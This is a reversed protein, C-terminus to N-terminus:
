ATTGLEAPDVVALFFLHVEEFFDWTSGVASGFLDAADVVRFDTGGKRGICILFESIFEGKEIPCSGVKL